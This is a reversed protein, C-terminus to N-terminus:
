KKEEEKEDGGEQKPTKGTLNKLLDGVDGDVVQYGGENAMKTVQEMVKLQDIQVTGKFEGTEMDFDPLVNLDLAQDVDVEDHKPVEFKELTANESGEFNLPALKIIPIDGNNYCRSYIYYMIEESSLEKYLNALASGYETIQKLSPEKLSDKHNYSLFIVAEGNHQGVNHLAYKEGKENEDLRLAAGKNEFTSSNFEIEFGYLSKLCDGVASPQIKYMRALISGKEEEKTTYAPAENLFGITLKHGLVEFEHSEIESLESTENFKAVALFEDVLALWIFDKGTDSM